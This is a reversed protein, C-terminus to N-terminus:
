APGASRSPRPLIAGRQADWSTPAEPSRAARDRTRRSAGPFFSHTAYVWPQKFDQDARQALALEDVALLSGLEHALGVAEGVRHLVANRDHEFVLRALQRGVLFHRSTLACNRTMM